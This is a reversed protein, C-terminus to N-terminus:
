KASLFKAACEAWGPLFHGADEVLEVDADPLAERLKAAADRQDDRAGFRAQVPM